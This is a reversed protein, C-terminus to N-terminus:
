NKSSPSIVSSSLSGNQALVILLYNSPPRQVVKKRHEINIGFSYLENPMTENKILVTFGIPTEKDLVVAYTEMDEKYFDRGGDILGLTHGACHELSGPSIHYKSLLDHDGSFAASLYVQLVEKPIPELTVSM